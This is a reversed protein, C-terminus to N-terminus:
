VDKEAFGEEDGVKKGMIEPMLDPIRRQATLPQIGLIYPRPDFRTIRKSM